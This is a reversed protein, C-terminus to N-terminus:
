TATVDEKLSSAVDLSARALLDLECLVHNSLVLLMIPWSRLQIRMIPWALKIRVALVKLERFRSNFLLEDRMTKM